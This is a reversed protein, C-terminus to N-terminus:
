ALLSKFFGPAPNNGTIGAVTVRARTNVSIKMDSIEKDIEGMFDVIFEILKHKYLDQLHFNTILFSVDYGQIPKRRLIVFSEARQQLFSVFRRLLIVELGDAKKICISIRASNVSGEIMVKECKDVAPEDKDPQSPVRVIVIPKFVIEKSIGVEVEPKNHREILQSAFNIVCLASNLTARITEFYAQNSTAM